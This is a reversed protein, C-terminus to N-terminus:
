DAWCKMGGSVTGGEGRAGSQDIGGRILEGVGVEGNMCSSNPSIFSRRADICNGGTGGAGRRGVGDVRQGTGIEGTFGSEVDGWGGRSGM